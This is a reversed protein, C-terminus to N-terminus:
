LCGTRGGDVALAVGNIYSAAPSALFAVASAVESPKGFRGAPISAQWANEVDTASKELRNAASEMLKHLRDTDTYGPLITNVTIGFPAVEAALTKAWAAVAWRITNSVGLNPIPIKVSTSTINIFRGYQNKKMGPLVLEAVLRNTLLHNNFATTFDEDTAQSIPGAAPGGSNNVVIDLIKPDSALVDRIDRPLEVVMSKSLGIKVTREVPMRTGPSIRLVSKHQSQAFAPTSALGCLAVVALAILACTLKKIKLM